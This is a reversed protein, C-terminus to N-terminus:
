VNQLNHQIMGIFITSKGRACKRCSGHERTERFIRDLTTRKGRRVSGYQVCVSLPSSELSTFRFSIMFHSDGVGKEHVQRRNQM